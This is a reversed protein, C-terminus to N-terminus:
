KSWLKKMLIVRLALEILLNQHLTVYEQQLSPRKIVYFYDDTLRM